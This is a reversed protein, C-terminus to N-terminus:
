STSPTLVAVWVPSLQSLVLLALTWSVLASRAPFLSRLNLSLLAPFQWFLWLLLAQNKGEFNRFTLLPVGLYLWGSLAGQQVAASTCCIV